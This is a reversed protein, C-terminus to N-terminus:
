LEICKLYDVKHLAHGGVFTMSNKSGILGYRVSYTCCFFKWIISKISHMPGWSLVPLELPRDAWIKRLLHLLSVKLYDIKYLANAGLM